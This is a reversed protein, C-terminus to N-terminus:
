QQQQQKQRKANSLHKCFCLVLPPPFCFFIWHTHSWVLSVHKLYVVTGSIEVMPNKKYHEVLESLSTFKEGGGVDFKGDKLFCILAILWFLLISYQALQEFFISHSFLSPSPFSWLLHFSLAFFISPCLLSSPTVSCLLHLSQAFFISHSLLSSPTVSFLLHLSLVFFISHCFLSSSTLSCLLHLSLVFFLSHFFLSSPTFSCLHLSLVFFNFHFFLSSLTFSLFFFFFHFCLHFLLGFIISHFFFSSLIFSCLLCLLLVFSIFHFYSSPTFSHLLSLSLLFFILHFGFSVSFSCFNLPPLYTLQLNSNKAWDLLATIDPCNWLLLFPCARYHHFSASCFLLLLPTSWSLLLKLCNFCCFWCLNLAVWVVSDVCTWPLESLLILM